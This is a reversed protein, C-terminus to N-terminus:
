ILAAVYMKRKNNFRNVLGILPCWLYDKNEDNYFAFHIQGQTKKFQDQSMINKSLSSSWEDFKLQDISLDINPM